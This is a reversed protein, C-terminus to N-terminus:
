GEKLNLTHRVANAQGRQKYKKISKNILASRIEAPAVHGVFGFGARKQGAKKAKKGYEREKKYWKEVVFVEVILSKYESLVYKIDSILEENIVWTEKTAQYIADKDSGRRYQKNINIIVSNKPMEDLTEANYRRVIEDSTMLGKEIANHGGAINTLPHSLYDFMDILSSEVLFAEKESMGHRVIVHRVHKSSRIKDYKLTAASDDELARDIHNFVRNNKGKGIYFPEREDDSFLAYVYSSLNQQSKEDFM